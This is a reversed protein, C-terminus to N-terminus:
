HLVVRRVAADIDQDAGIGTYAVTGTSDLVVVYSTSPAEFARTANGNADWLFRFPEPHGATHRQVSGKTENVAVAIVVFAVRKGYAAQAARLRPLLAECLPCWTAWFELLVPQKGVWAGLDVPKGELDEITVAPARTGVALGLEEDQARLMGPIACIVVLGAAPLLSALRTV